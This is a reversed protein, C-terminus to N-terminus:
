QIGRARLYETLAQRDEPAFVDFGWVAECIEWVQDIATIELIDALVAVDNFDRIGRGARAKM